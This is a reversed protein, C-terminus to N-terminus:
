ATKKPPKKTAPRRAERQRQRQAHRERIPRILEEVETEIMKDIKNYFELGFDWPLNKPFGTFNEKSGEWRLPIGSQELICRIGTLANQLAGISDISRGFRVSDDGLGEFIFPCRWNDHPHDIEPSGIRVIVIGGVADRRKLRREAIWQTQNTKFAKKSTPVNM